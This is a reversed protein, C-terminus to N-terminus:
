MRYNVNDEHIQGPGYTQCPLLQNMNQHKQDQPRSCVIVFYSYLQKEQSSM